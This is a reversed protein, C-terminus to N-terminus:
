RAIRHSAQASDVYNQAPDDLRAHVYWEAQELKRRYAYRSLNLRKARNGLTGDQVYTVLLIMRHQPPSKCIIHDIEAIDEPPDLSEVGGRGSRAREIASM